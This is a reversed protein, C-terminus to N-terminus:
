PVSVRDPGEGRAQRAWLAWARGLQRDNAEAALAAEDATLFTVSGLRLAEMQLWANQVAYVARYVAQELTAGVLTAGHGRMLVIPKDGLARALARGLQPTRVLLDTQGAVERIEFRAVGAGLFGSMHSVPRLPGPTVSFLVLLPAHCHVVAAVDSRARYIEGHIFREAYHSEGTAELPRSDLDFTVVDRATVLGPAVPRSLLYLEPDKDHRVSVHGFADVVKQDFLIRNATVLREILEVSAPPAARPPASM